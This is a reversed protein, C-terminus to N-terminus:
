AAGPQRAQKFLSALDPATPEVHAGLGHNPAVRRGIEVLWPLTRTLFRALDIRSVMMESWFGTCRAEAAQSSSWCPLVLHGRDAQSTAFAPGMDDELVWVSGLQRADEVFHKLAEAHLRRELDDPECEVDAPECAPWDAGILRNLSRLKPLVDEFLNHVTIPNLRPRAFRTMWRGAEERTSWMLNAERGRRASSAVRSLGDAGSITWVIRSQTVRRAFIDLRATHTRRALKLQM